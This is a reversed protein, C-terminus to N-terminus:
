LGGTQPAPPLAPDVLVARRRGRRGLSASLVPVDHHSGALVGVLTTLAGADIRIVDGPHLDEVEEATVYSSPLRLSVDVPVDGLLQETARTPVPAATETETPLLSKAPLCLSIRAVTGQPLVAELQLAVVEGGGVPLPKDSVAGAQLRTVGHEALAEAVPKLAPLVHQVVLQQELTTAARDATEGLGGLFVDALAVASDAPVLLLGPDSLGCTLPAWVAGTTAVERLAVRRVAQATVTVTRGCALGLLLGVRPAAESVAAVLGSAGVPMPLPERFDFLHASPV